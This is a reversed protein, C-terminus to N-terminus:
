GQSGKGKGKEEEGKKRWELYLYIFLLNMLECALFFALASIEILSVAENANAPPQAQAKAQKALFKEMKAKRKADNKAQNKSLSQSNPTGSSNPSEPASAEDKALTGNLPDQQQQQPQTM